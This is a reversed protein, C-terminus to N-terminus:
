KYQLMLSIKYLNKVLCSNIPIICLTNRRLEITSCSATLKSTAPELGAAPALSLLYIGLGPERVSLDSVEQTLCSNQTSRLLYLINSGDSLATKEYKGRFTLEFKSRKGWLLGAGSSRVSNWSREKSTDSLDARVSTSIVLFSIKM